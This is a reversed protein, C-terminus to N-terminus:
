NIISKYKKIGATIVHIKLGIASSMIASVAILSYDIYNLIRCGKKHKKSM